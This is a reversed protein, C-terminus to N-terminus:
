CVWLNEVCFFTTPWMVSFLHLLKLLTLLQLQTARHGTSSMQLIKYWM